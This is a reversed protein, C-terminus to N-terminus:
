GQDEYGRSRMLTRRFQTLRNRVSGDYVRDGISVVAGGLIEPRTETQIAIERRLSSRLLSEIEDHLGEPLPAATHVEVRTRKAHEDALGGYAEVIVSLAEIRRKRVLLCLFDTVTDSAVNALAKQLIRVKDEPELVPSELFVAIERDDHVLSLFEQLEAGVGDVQGQEKAIGFLAEAYVRGLPNALM